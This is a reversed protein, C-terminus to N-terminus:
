FVVYIYPLITSPFESGNTVGFKATASSIVRATKNNPPPINGLKQKGVHCYKKHLTAFTNAIDNAYM